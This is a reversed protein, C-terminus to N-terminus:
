KVHKMDPGHAMFLHIIRSGFRNFEDFLGSERKKLYELANKKELALAGHLVWNERKKEM